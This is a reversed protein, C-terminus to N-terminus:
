KKELKQLREELQLIYLTLEEVKRLLTEDMKALDFGNEKVEKASPVDPLHKNAAIYSAVETLKRLKYDKEFVYDAWSDSNKVEVKEAIIGGDVYLKRDGIFNNTGIAVKGNEFFTNGNQFIVDGNKFVVNGFNQSSTKSYNFFIDNTVPNFFLMDLKGGQGDYQKLRFNSHTGGVINTQTAFEWKEQTSTGAVSEFTLYSGSNKMPNTNRLTLRPTNKSITVDVTTYSDLIGGCPAFSPEGGCNYLAKTPASNTSNKGTKQAFLQTLSLAFLLAFISLKM